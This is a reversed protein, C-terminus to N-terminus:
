EMWYYPEAFQCQPNLTGPKVTGSKTNWTKVTGTKTNWTKDNRIQHELMGHESTGPKVVHWVLVENEHSVLLSLLFNIPIQLNSM